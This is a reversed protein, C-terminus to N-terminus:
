RKAIEVTSFEDGQALAPVTTLVVASVFTLLMKRM